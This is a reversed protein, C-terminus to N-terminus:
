LQAGAMHVKKHDQNYAMSKEGAKVTPPSTRRPHLIGIFLTEAIIDRLTLSMKRLMQLSLSGTASSVTQLLQRIISM